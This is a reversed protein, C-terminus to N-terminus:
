TFALCLLSFCFYFYLNESPVKPRGETLEYPHIKQLHSTCKTLSERLKRSAWRSMKGQKRTTSTTVANGLFYSFIFLTWTSSYFVKAPYCDQVKPVVGFSKRCTNLNLMRIETFYQIINHVFYKVTHTPLRNLLTRFVKLFFFVVVVVVFCSNCTWIM